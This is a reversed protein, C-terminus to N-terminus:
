CEGARIHRRCFKKDGVIYPLTFLPYCTSQHVSNCCRRAVHWKSLQHLRVSIIGVGNETYVLRDAHPTARYGRSTNTVQFSKM